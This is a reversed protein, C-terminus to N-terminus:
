EVTFLARFLITLTFRDINLLKYLDLLLAQQCRSVKKLQVLECRIYLCSGVMGNRTFQVMVKYM